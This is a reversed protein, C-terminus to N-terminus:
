NLVSILVWNELVIKYETHKQLYGYVNLVALSYGNIQRDVGSNREYKV